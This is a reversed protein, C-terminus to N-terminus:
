LLHRKKIRYEIEFCSCKKWQFWEEQTQELIDTTNKFYYFGQKFQIEAKSSTKHEEPIQIGFFLLIIIISM